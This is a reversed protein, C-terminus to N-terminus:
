RLEVGCCICMPFPNGLMVSVLTRLSPPWGMPPGLPTRAWDTGRMLAAMEGAGALFDEARTSRV